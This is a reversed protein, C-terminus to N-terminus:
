KKKTGKKSAAAKKPVSKKKVPSYKKKATASKRKPQDGQDGFGPKAKTKAKKKRDQSLSRSQDDSEKIRGKEDRKIYRKDGRPEILTRKGSSKKSASRASKAM